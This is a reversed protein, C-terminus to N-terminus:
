GLRALLSQATDAWTPLPRAALQKVLERHHGADTLVRRLAARWAEFDNPAVPVGGGADANERLVPLDSFVCPVGLWLAELLPLGCGEALTPFVSARAEGYLHTMEEDGAAAHYHLGSWSKRLQKIKALVPQGFHPNVRGVLHLDFALGDRWLSACVDLLFTQNKRPELIGVCLLSARGADGGSVVRPQRLFDSGLLVTEVDGRPVVGQWRWFEVLERRSAESVAFVRDFEALMKMYEPHRGVSQPWTVQPLKLPIADHFVAALRCRRERIFAWLGPCEAECFLEATLLWDNAGPRFDAASVALGKGPVLMAVPQVASGMEERLRATVRTLGSRHRAQRTRSQEFYIM